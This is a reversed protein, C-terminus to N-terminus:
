RSSSRNRSGRRPGARFQEPIGGSAWSAYGYRAFTNVIETVRKSHRLLTRRATSTDTM